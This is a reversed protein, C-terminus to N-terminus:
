KKKKARKARNPKSRKPGGGAGASEFHMLVVKTNFGGEGDGARRKASEAEIEVVKNM